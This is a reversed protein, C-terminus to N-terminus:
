PMKGADIPYFALFTADLSGDTFKFGRPM